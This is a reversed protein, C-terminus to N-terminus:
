VCAYNTFRPTIDDTGVCPTRKALSESSTSENNMMSSKNKNDGEYIAISQLAKGKSSQIKNREHAGGAESRKDGKNPTM